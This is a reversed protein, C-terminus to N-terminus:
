GYSDGGKKKCNQCYGYFDLRHYKVEIGGKKSVKKDLGKFVPIELDFVNNCGICFFHYHQETCGDYHCGYKGGTLELIKGEEKLINLNRYITGLSIKPFKRKLIRFLTYSTPHTKLKKLEELIAKRQKTNRRKIEKGMKKNM